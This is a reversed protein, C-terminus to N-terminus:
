PNLSDWTYLFKEVKVKKSESATNVLPINVKVTEEYSFPLEPRRLNAVRDNLVIQNKDFVLGGQPTEEFSDVSFVVRDAFVNSM